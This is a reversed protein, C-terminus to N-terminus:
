RRAKRSVPGSPAPKTTSASTLWGAFSVLWSALKRRVRRRRRPKIANDLDRELRDLQARTQKIQRRADKQVALASSPKSKM